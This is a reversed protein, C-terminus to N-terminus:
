DAQVAARRYEARFASPTMGKRALFQRNFHALTGYGTEMAILKIPRDTQILAECALGVRLQALYDLVTLGTHRKFFRHFAGVSMAADQALDQVSPTATPDLHLQALVRALRGQAKDGGSGAPFVTHTALFAAKEDRALLILVQLLVPLRQAADLDRLSLLLPQVAARTPASFQIGRGADSALVALPQLESWGQTWRALWETTFWVVVALMPQLPDPRQSAAWTHPQNPGVLVLDGSDFDELSDGVYRQGRANLTLTLEFEAHYHWLFPFTPLERWLLAWSEGPKVTVHEFHPKM